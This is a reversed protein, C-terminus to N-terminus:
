VCDFRGNCVFARIAVFVNMCVFRCGCNICANRCETVCTSICERGCAYPLALVHGWWVYESLICVCVFVCDGLDM